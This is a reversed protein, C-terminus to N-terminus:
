EKRAVWIEEAPWKRAWDATVVNNSNDKVYNFYRRQPDNYKVANDNSTAQIYGKHEVSQLM